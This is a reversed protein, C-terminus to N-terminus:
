SPQGDRTGGRPLLMIEIRRNRRRGDESDNSAVPETDARGAASLRDPPLGTAVLYRVVATARASSLEWNSPFRDRLEPGIPVADTHGEVLIRRDGARALVAGVRALMERGRPSLSVEGSPFLVRDVISVTLRGQAEELAIVKSALEGQLAAVLDARESRAQELAAEQQARADELRRELAQARDREAELRAALESRETTLADVQDLLADRSAELSAFREGTDPSPERPVGEVDTPGAAPERAVVDSAGSGGHEPGAVEPAPAGALDVIMVGDSTGASGHPWLYTVAGAHLAGSLAVLALVRGRSITPRRRARPTTSTPMADM